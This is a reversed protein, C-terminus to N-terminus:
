GAVALAPVPRKRSKARTLRSAATSALWIALAAVAL